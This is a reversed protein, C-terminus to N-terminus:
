NYFAFNRNTFYSFVYGTIPTSPNIITDFISTGNYFVELETQISQYHLLTLDFRTSDTLGSYTFTTDLVRIPGAPSEYLVTNEKTISISHPAKIKFSLTGLNNTPSPTVPDDKKCSVVMMGVALLILVTLKNM